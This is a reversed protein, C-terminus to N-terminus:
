RSIEYTIERVQGNNGPFGDFIAQMLYPMVLDLSDAEGRHVATARYVERGGNQLDFITVTLTNRYVTVPVTVAPPSYFIGGGWRNWGGYYGGFASGMWGDYLYPDDYRRVWTQETPNAYEFGVEFRPRTAAPAERLGTPGIAARLMDSFAGYQLNGSQAPQPAIRYYEGQAGVPWQQYTTVRASLTSACGALALMAAALLTGWVRRCHYSMAPSKM